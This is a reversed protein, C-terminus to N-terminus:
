KVCSSTISLEAGAVIHIWWNLAIFTDDYYVVLRALTDLPADNPIIGEWTM